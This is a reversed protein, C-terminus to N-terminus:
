SLKSPNGAITAAIADRQCIQGIALFIIPIAMSWALTHQYAATATSFITALAAWTTKKSLLELLTMSFGPVRM